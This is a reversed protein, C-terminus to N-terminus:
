QGSKLLDTSGDDKRCIFCSMTERTIKLRRLCCHLIDTNSISSLCLGLIIAVVISLTQEWAFDTVVGNDGDPVILLVLGAIAQCVLTLILALVIRDFTGPKPHSTLTYYVAASIFGPLLFTLVGVIEGSAWNM